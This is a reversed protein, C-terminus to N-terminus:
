CRQWQSRAGGTCVRRRVGSSGPMFLCCSTCLAISLVQEQGLVEVRLLHREARLPTIGRARRRQMMSTTANTPSAPLVFTKSGPTIANTPVTSLVPALTVIAGVGALLLLGGASPQLGLLLWFCRCRCSVCTRGGRSQRLTAKNDKGTSRHVQVTQQAASLACCPKCLLRDIAKRVSRYHIGTSAVGFATPSQDFTPVRSRCQQQQCLCASDVLWSRMNIRIIVPGSRHRPHELTYLTCEAFM